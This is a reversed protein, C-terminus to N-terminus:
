IVSLVGRVVDPVVARVVAPGVVRLVLYVIGLAPVLLLLWNKTARNHSTGERRGRLTSVSNLTYFTRHPLSPNDMGSAVLRM